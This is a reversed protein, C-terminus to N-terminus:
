PARVELRAHGVPVFAATQFVRQTSGDSQTYSYSDHSFPIAGEFELSGFLPGAIRFRLGARLDAQGYPRTTSQSIDLKFGSSYVVGGAGGLCGYVAWDWYTAALPCLGIGATWAGFQGGSGGPTAETAPWMPWFHTSLVVPWVPPTHIESVLGFGVAVGPLLGYAVAVEPGIAVAIPEVPTPLALPAQRESSDVMLAVVLVLAEDLDRCDAAALALERELTTAGESRAEVVALWGRGGPVPAIRGRITADAGEGRSFVRRGVVQEVRKSLTARDICGEAGPSRSWALEVVAPNDV